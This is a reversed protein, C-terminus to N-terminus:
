RRHDGLIHLMYSRGRAGSVRDVQCTCTLDQWSGEVRLLRCSGKVVAEIFEVWGSPVMSPAKVERSVRHGPLLTRSSFPVSSLGRPSPLIIDHRLHRATVELLEPLKRHLKEM